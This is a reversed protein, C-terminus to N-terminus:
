ELIRAGQQSIASVYLDSQLDAELFATEMALGAQKAIVMNPCLAFMSPGSGSIGCGLAGQDLAATKVNEYGPILQGRHPEALEDVFSRRILGLDEQFLGAVFSAIHGMQHTATEMSVTKPLIERADRTKIHMHPHVVACSFAAPTALSIIDLPEMSHVVTFGGLLAPAGNDAHPVGTAARESELVFPLLEEHSLGLEFLENVAVVAAVASSASSGMGGVIPVGKQIELEMNLSLSNADLLAQVAVGATNLLPDSPLDSFIGTLPKIHIGPKDSSKCIVIDGPEDLAFGLVDFGCTANAVTAPAFAKVSKKM